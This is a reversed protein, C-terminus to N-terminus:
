KSSHSTAAAPAALEHPSAALMLSINAQIFSALFIFAAILALQAIVGSGFAMKRSFKIRAKVTDTGPVVIKNVAAENLHPLSLLGLKLQTEAVLLTHEAHREHGLKITV